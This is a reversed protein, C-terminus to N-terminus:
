LKEYNLYNISRLPPFYLQFSSHFQTYLLINMCLFLTQKLLCCFFLVVIKHTHTQSKFILLIHCVHTKQELFSVPCALLIRGWQVAFTECLKKSCKTCYDRDLPLNVKRKCIMLLQLGALLTQM